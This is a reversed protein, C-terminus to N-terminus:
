KFHELLQNILSPNASIIGNEPFYVDGNFDCVKGGAKEVIFAGAAVDYSNLNMEWFGDLKGCAVYCLDVAASGFRRIDRLLPVIKNFYSLNNPKADARLCAFGTAMVSNILAEAASVRILGGNLFAGSDQDAYFLEDLRPAFVAGCITKGQHQVAISTSYFPQQHLFSTTGDIPDIIWVYDSSFSSRGTEEGLIDHGPYKTKIKEIIFNEIKKDVTTVLDKRGKFNVDSPLLRSQEVKCISGAKQILDVLFEIM